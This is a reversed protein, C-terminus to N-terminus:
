LGNCANKVKVRLSTPVMFKVGEDSKNKGPSTRQLSAEVLKGAPFMQCHKSVNRTDSSPHFKCDPCEAPLLWGPISGFMIGCPCGGGVPLHDARFLLLAPASFGWKVSEGGM